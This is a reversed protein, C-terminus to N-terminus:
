NSLSATRQHKQLSVTLCQYQGHITGLHAIVERWMEDFLVQFDCLLSM